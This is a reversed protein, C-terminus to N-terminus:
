FVIPNTHFDCTQHQDAEHRGRPQGASNGNTRGLRRRTSVCASARALAASDTHTHRAIRKPVVRHRANRSTTERARARSWVDGDLRSPCRADTKYKKLRGLRQVCPWVGLPRRAADVPTAPGRRGIIDRNLASTKRKGGDCISMQRACRARFRSFVTMKHRYDCVLRTAVRASCGSQM